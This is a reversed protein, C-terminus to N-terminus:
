KAIKGGVHLTSSFQATYCPVEAAQLVNTHETTARLTARLLWNLKECRNCSSESRWQATYRGKLLICRLRERAANERYKKSFRGVGNAQTERPKRRVLQPFNTVDRQATYCRVEAVAVFCKNKWTANRTVPFIAGHLVAKLIVVIWGKGGFPPAFGFASRLRTRATASHGFAENRETKNWKVYFCPSLKCDLTNNLKVVSLWHFYRPFSFSPTANIFVRPVNMTSRPSLSGQRAKAFPKRGVTREKAVQRQKQPKNPNTRPDSKSIWVQKYPTRKLSQRVSTLLPSLKNKSHM